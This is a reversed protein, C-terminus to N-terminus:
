GLKEGSRVSERKQTGPSPISWEMEGQMGRLLTWCLRWSTGGGAERDGGGGLIVTRTRRTAPLGVLNISSDTM